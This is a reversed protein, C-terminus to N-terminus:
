ESHDSPHVKEILGYVGTLLLLELVVLQTAIEPYNWAIVVMLAIWVDLYFCGLLVKTKSWGGSLLRQFAHQKHPVLILSRNRIMRRCLTITADFLFSGHLMLWLYAPFAYYSQGILAIGAIVFGLFTSGSDGIFAKSFLPFNFMLSLLLLWALVLSMGSLLTVGSYALLMGGFFFIVVGHLLALGDSGDMFNFLNISWVMLFSYISFNLVGLDFVVNGIQFFMIPQFSNMFFISGGFYCLLRFKANLSRMDDLIGILLVGLAVMLFSKMPPIIMEQNTYMAYSMVLWIAGFIIGLGRPTPVNHSSRNNPVDM